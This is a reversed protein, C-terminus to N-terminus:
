SHWEGIYNFREYDGSTRSFFAALAAQTQSPDRVFHAASGGSRQVSLDVIRFMTEQVHEGMLVGGIERRGASRLERRLRQIVAQTLLIKMPFSRSSRWCTPVSRM